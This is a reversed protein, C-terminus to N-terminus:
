QDDDVLCTTMKNKVEPTGRRDEPEGGGNLSPSGARQHALGM